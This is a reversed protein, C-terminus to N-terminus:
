LVIMLLDAILMRAMMGALPPDLLTGLFFRALTPPFVRIAQAASVTCCLQRPFASRQVSSSSIIVTPRFSPRQDQPM